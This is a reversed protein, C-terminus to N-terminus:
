KQNNNNHANKRCWIKRLKQHSESQEVGERESM